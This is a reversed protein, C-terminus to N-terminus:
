VTTNKILLVLAINTFLILHTRVTLKDHCACCACSSSQVKIPYYKFNKIIKLKNFKFLSITKLSFLFIKATARKVTAHFLTNLKVLKLSM